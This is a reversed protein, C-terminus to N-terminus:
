AADTVTLLPPASLLIIDAESQLVDLVQDMRRSGLLDPALAPLPGSTLLRLGPVATQNLPPHAVPDQGTMMTTLGADNPLGFIDHLCPERFNSDVVIVRQEIQAMTVALNALTQTAWDGGAASAAVVLLSRVPQDQDAFLINMRLTRYAETAPSLPQTLTVLTPADSM